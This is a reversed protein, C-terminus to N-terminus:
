VGRTKYCPPKYYISNHFHLPQSEMAIVFSYVVNTWLTQWAPLSECLAPLAITSIGVSGLAISSRGSAEPSAIVFPICLTQGCRKDRQFRSVCHQYHLPQSEEPIVFSVYLFNSYPNRRFSLHFVYRKDVVNTVSSAVWVISTICHNPNSLFSSVFLSEQPILFSYV